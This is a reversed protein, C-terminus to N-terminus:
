KYQNKKTVSNKILYAAILWVAVAAAITFIVAALATIFFELSLIQTLPDALYSNEYKEPQFPFLLYHLNGWLRYLFTTSTIWSGILSFLCFGAIFITIATYFYGTYRFLFESADRRRVIFFILLVASLCAAVSRIVSASKILAKVDAMHLVAKEGFVSVGDCRGVGWVEVEDLSLEFSETDGFLYDTIHDIMKDYQEDSFTASMNANGGVFYIRRRAEGLEGETSYIGNEEFQVRYFDKSSALTLATTIGSSLILCINFIIVAIKSFTKM